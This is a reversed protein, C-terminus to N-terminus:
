PGLQIGKPITAAATPSSSGGTSSTTTPPLVVNSTNNNCATLLLTFIILYFALRIPSYRFINTRTWNVNDPLRDHLDLSDHPSSSLCLAGVWGGMWGRARCSPPRTPHSAPTTTNTPHDEMTM